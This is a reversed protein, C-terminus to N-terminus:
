LFWPAEHYQGGAGTDGGQPFLMAGAAKEGLSRLISESVGPCLVQGEGRATHTRAQPAQQTVWPCAQTAGSERKCPARSGGSAKQGWPGGRVWDWM